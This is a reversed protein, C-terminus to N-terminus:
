QFIELFHKTETSNASVCGQTVRKVSYRWNVVPDISTCCLVSFLDSEFLSGILAKEWRSFVSILVYKCIILSQFMFNNKLIRFAQIILIVQSIKQSHIWITKVTYLDIVRNQRHLWIWINVLASIIRNRCNQCM